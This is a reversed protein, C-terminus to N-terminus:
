GGSSVKVLLGMRNPGLRKQAMLLRGDEVLVKAESVSILAGEVSDWLGTLGSEAILTWTLPLHDM